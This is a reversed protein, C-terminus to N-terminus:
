PRQFFANKSLGVVVFGTVVNTGSVAPNVSLVLGNRMFTDVKIRMPGGPTSATSSAVVPAATVTFSMAPNSKVVSAVTAVDYLVVQATSSTGASVNDIVISDIWLPSSANAATITVATAAVQGSAVSFYVPFGTAHVFSASIVLAATLAVARLAKIPNHM